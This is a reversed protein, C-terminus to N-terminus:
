QSPGTVSTVAELYGAVVGKEKMLKVLSATGKSLFLLGQTLGTIQPGLTTIFTGASVTMSEQLNQMAVKLEGGVRIQADQLAAQRKVSPAFDNAIVSALDRMDKPTAPGKPATSMEEQIKAVRQQEHANLREGRLQRSMLQADKPGMSIGLKSMGRMLTFAGGAGPGGAQTLNAMVTRLKDGELGGELNIMAEMMDELGGGKFGGAQLMLLDMGSQPGQQAIRQGAQFMGGAIALGRPATIGLTTMTRAMGVISAPNIAMGTQAWRNIGQAMDQMHTVLESGELSLAMGERIADTLGKAGGPGALGGRRGAKLFAGSVDAGVGATTQAAVATAAMSRPDLTGGAMALQRGFQESERMGMAGFEMGARHLPRFFKSREREQARNLAKRTEATETAAKRENRIATDAHWNLPLAGQDAVRKVNAEAVKRRAAEPGEGLRTMEAQVAVDGGALRLMRANLDAPSVDAIQAQRGKERIGARDAETLGVNRMNAALGTGGLMPINQFRAQEFQVAQAAMGMANQLQGAMFGGVVPVGALGQAFGSVGQFMGGAGATVPARLTRGALRGAVQRGMGPGRQIMEGVGVGQALGQVFAGRSQDAKKLAREVGEIKKQLRDFETGISAIARQAEKNKGVARLAKDIAKEFGSVSKQADDFGRKASEAGQKTEQNLQRAKERVNAFGTERAAVTFDTRADNAM